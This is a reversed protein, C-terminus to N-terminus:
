KVEHIIMVGKGNNAGGQMSLIMEQFCECAGKLDDVQKQLETNKDKLQQSEYRATHLELEYGNECQALNQQLKYNEETLREIEKRQKVVLCNSNACTKCSYYYNCGNEISM